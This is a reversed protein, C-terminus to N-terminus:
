PNTAPVDETIRRRMEALYDDTDMEGAAHAEALDIASQPIEVGELRASGVESAVYPDDSPVASM